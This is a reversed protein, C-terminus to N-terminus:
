RYTRSVEEGSGRGCSRDVAVMWAIDGSVQWVTHGGDVAPCNGEHQEDSLKGFYGDTKMILSNKAQVQPTLHLGSAQIGLDAEENKWAGARMM